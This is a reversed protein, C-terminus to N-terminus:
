YDASERHLPQRGMLVEAQWFSRAADKDAAATRGAHGPQNTKGPHLM